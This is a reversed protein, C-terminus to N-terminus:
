HFSRFQSSLKRRVFFWWLAFGSSCRDSVWYFQHNSCCNVWWSKKVLWVSDQFIFFNTGCFITDLVFVFFLLIESVYVGFDLFGMFLWCVWLANVLWFILAAWKLSTLVSSANMLWSWFTTSVVLKHPCSEESLFWWLVFGSRCRDRVWHFQHNSCCHVWSSKKVLWVSDQFIFFNTGCFIADLVFVFFSMNWFCLSWFWLCLVGLFQWCVRLTNVVLFVTATYKLSTLVSPVNLLRSWFSTSVVMKHRCSEESLFRWLVFGSRCRDSVWHSQHNSCCHVWWSKKVLWVSDQFIFFNTGCFITDLVFVFFLLIESVYVGFDLFGM